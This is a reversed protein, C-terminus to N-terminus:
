RYVVAAIGVVAFIAAALWRILRMPCARTVREGLLVVPINAFMMGATTGLLVSYFDAYRAALAITAVQTKDGIEALFFAALSTVFVGLKPQPPLTGDHRDPWLAWLAIACFSGGLLWRLWQPDIAAAVQGGLWAALAHNAVTAVMIALIIPIPRRYRAALLLSLLQTKDGIEAVAVVAISMLLAPMSRDRPSLRFVTPVALGARGMLPEGIGFTEGPEM